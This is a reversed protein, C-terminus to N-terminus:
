KNQAILKSVMQIFFTKSSVRLREKLVNLPRM